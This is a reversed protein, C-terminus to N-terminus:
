DCNLLISGKDDVADFREVWGELDFLCLQEIEKGVHFDEIGVDVNVVNGVVGNDDGDFTM